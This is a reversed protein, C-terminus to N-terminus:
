YHSVEKKRERYIDLNGGRIMIFVVKEKGGGSQWREATGCKQASPGGNDDTAAVFQVNGNLFMEGSHM